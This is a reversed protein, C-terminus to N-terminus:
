ADWAWGVGWWGTAREGMWYWCPIGAVAAAAAAASLAGTVPRASSGGAAGAFLALQPALARSCGVAAAPACTGATAPGRGEAGDCDAVPDVAPDGISASPPGLVSVVASPSMTASAFSHLEPEPPWAVLPPPRARALTALAASGCCGAAAAVATAAAVSTTSAACRRVVRALAAKTVSGTGQALAAVAPRFRARCSDFTPTSCGPWGVDAPLTRGRAGRGGDLGLSADPPRAPNARVCQGLGLSPERDGTTPPRGPAAEVPSSSAACACLAASPAAGSRGAPIPRHGLVLSRDIGDAGPV